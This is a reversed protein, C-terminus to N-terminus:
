KNTILLPMQETFETLIMAIVAYASYNCLVSVRFYNPKLEYLVLSHASSDKTHMSM